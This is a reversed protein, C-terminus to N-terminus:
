YIPVRQNKELKLSIHKKSKNKKSGAVRLLLPLGPKVESIPKSDILKNALLEDYLQKGKETRIIITNWGSPSGISGISIDASESTLDFCMECDERALHSIEKIPINFEEGNQTYVFFKGKNINMKKADKIDINLIECIKLLSEFSFSEMCFIGIRYEINNLAPLSIDYIKSKLLAQMQCPVGVIALTKNKLEKQNLVQLNPNNVYKTGATLIIDEKNRILLTEPRWLTRSMKAGVGFDIKNKDLLYFLCTSSIGGDQCAESIEKIKTRASYIELYPGVKPYERINSAKDQNMNIIKIPLYSRPCIFYCLGCRICKDEDIKGFGNYITLCNVPCIGSCLGCGSCNKSDFIVKVPEYIPRLKANDTNNPKISYDKFVLSDPTNEDGEIKDYLEEVILLKEKDLLELLSLTKNIEISNIESFQKLNNFNSNSNNNIFHFLSYKLLEEDLMKFLITEYEPENYIGAKLIDQKSDILVRIRYSDLANALNKLFEWSFKIESSM